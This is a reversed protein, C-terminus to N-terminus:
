VQARLNEFGPIGDSDIRIRGRRHLTELLERKALEIGVHLVFVVEHDLEVPELDEVFVRRNRGRGRSVARREQDGVATPSRDLLPERDMRAANMECLSQPPWSVPHPCGSCTPRRRAM